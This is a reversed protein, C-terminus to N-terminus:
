LGELWADADIMPITKWNERDMLDRFASDVTAGKGFASFDKGDKSRVNVQWSGNEHQFCNNIQWGADTWDAFIQDIVKSAV